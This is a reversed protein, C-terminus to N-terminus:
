SEDARGHSTHTWDSTARIIPVLKRVASPSGVHVPLDGFGLPVPLVFRLTRLHTSNMPPAHYLAKEPVYRVPRKMGLLNEACARRVQATSRMV